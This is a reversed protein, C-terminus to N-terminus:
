FENVSPFHKRILALLDDTLPATLLIEEGTTPHPFRLTRAHLAHREIDPSPAGYLDDGTIPHGLHAFHVRLQHTRGTVPELALKCSEEQRELVAYRTLCPKGDPHVFRLLSPLPRRAIPADISGSDAEPAGFTRAHYTKQLAAAQM